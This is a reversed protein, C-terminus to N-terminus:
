AQEAAAGALAEAEALRALRLRDAQDKVEILLRAQAVVAVYEFAFAGLTFALTASAAVLHWLGGFGRMTDATAGLWATAGIALMGWIVFPFCRRKNRTAQAEVWDPMQYVRVVERVWKGTGLFYTYVVGHVLLTTLITLLAVLFHMDHVIGGQGSPVFLGLAYTVLLLLGDTVALALFIQHM